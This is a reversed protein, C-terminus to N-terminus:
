RNYFTLRFGRNGLEIIDHNQLPYAQMYRLPEGNLYTTNRENIPVMYFRKADTDTGHRLIAIHERSISDVVDAHQTHEELIPQHHMQYDIPMASRGISVPIQGSQINKGNETRLRFTVHDALPRSRLDKLKEERVVTIHQELRPAEDKTHFFFLRRTDLTGMKLTTNLPHVDEEQWLCFHLNPQTADPKDADPHLNDRLQEIEPRFEERINKIFGGVTVSQLVDAEHIKDLVQIKIPIYDRNM